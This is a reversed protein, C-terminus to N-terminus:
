VPYPPSEPRDYSEAGQENVSEFEELIGELDCGCEIRLLRTSLYANPGSWSGDEYVDGDDHEYGVECSLGKDAHCLPCTLFLTIAHSFTSM